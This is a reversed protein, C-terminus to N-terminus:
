VFRPFRCCVQATNMNYRVGALLTQLREGALEYPNHGDCGANEEDSSPRYVKCRVVRTKYRATCALPLAQQRTPLLSRASCILSM